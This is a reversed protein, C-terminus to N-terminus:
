ILADRTQIGKLGPPRLPTPAALTGKPKPVPNVFPDRRGGANYRYNKPVFLAPLPDELSAPATQSQAQSFVFLSAGFSLVSSFLLIRRMMKKAVDNLPRRNFRLRPLRNTKTCTPRQRTCRMSAQLLHWSAKPRRAQLGCDGSM